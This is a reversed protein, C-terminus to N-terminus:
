SGQIGHSCPWMLSYSSFFNDFYVSHDKKNKCIELGNKVVHTGLPEDSVQNARGQYIEIKYPVATASALVRLKYGFHIPKACM